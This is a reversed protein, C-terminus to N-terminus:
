REMAAAADDQPFPLTPTNAFYAATMEQTVDSLRAPQWRPNRDKDIVQARIGEVLDPARFLAYVMRYDQNLAQELSPLHGSLRMAEFTVTLALPAASDIIKAAAQAGPDAHAALRERIQRVSTGEYCEEIWGRQAMIESDGASPLVAFAADAGDRAVADIVENIRIHPVLRDALGMAVADDGSLASGTLAAHMGTRGPARSLLYTGGVDPVLGIKVEPMGVMSRDTVLRHSAHASLGVGGGMVLGDMVAVFPKPYHAIKSNLRYEDRWFAYTENGGSTADLYIARIDGGACLGREGAGQLVVAQVSDDLAWEDLVRTIERVMAHNLANITRPRNLTMLGLNRDRHVLVEPETAVGIASSM